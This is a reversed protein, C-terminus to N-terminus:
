PEITATSYVLNLNAQATQGEPTLSIVTIDNSGSILDLDAEFRGSADAYVLIETEETLVTVLSNPTTTGTLTVQDQDLLSDTEPSLITLSHSPLPSAQVKPTPTPTPGVQRDKLAKKATYIGLTIVLGLGFGIVIALVVEKKM